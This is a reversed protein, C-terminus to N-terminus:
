TPPRHCLYEINQQRGFPKTTYTQFLSKSRSLKDPPKIKLNVTSALLLINIMSITWCISNSVSNDPSNGYKAQDMECNHHGYQQM